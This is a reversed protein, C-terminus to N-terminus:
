YMKIFNMHVRRWVKLGAAEAMGLHRVNLSRLHICFKGCDVQSWLIKYALGDMFFLCIKILCNEHPFSVLVHFATPIELEYKTGHLCCM